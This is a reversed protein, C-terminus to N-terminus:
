KQVDKKVLEVIRKSARGDIRGLVKKIFDASRAKFLNKHKLVKKVSSKIDDKYSINLTVDEKTIWEVVFDDELINLTIVPKGLIMAELAVNSGFHVICASESILRYFDKGTDTNLEDAMEKYEALNKERPHPKIIIKYDLSKLQGIIKKFRLFYEKRNLYGEEIIPSTAILIQKNESQDKIYPFIEDYVVPGTIIIDEAPIGLSILEHKSVEGFVLFRARIEPNALREPTVDYGHQVYYIPINQCAAFLCKEFISSAGTVIVARINEKEVIKKMTHCYLVVFYLFQESFFLDFAYKFRPWYSGLLRHKFNKHLSRWQSHIIKSEKKAKQKIDDDVYEYICSYKALKKYNRSSLPDAFLVLDNIGQKRMEELVTQIRFMRGNSEFNSFTLLLVKKTKDFTKKKSFYRIKKNENYWIFRALIKSWIAFRIKHFMSFKRIYYPNIQKPLVHAAFLRRYFWGVPLSGIKLIDDLRIDDVKRKGWDIVFKELDTKEM